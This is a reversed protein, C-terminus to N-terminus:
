WAGPGPQGRMGQGVPRGARAAGGQCTVRLVGRLQDPAPGARGNLM